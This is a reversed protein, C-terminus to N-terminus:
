KCAWYHSNPVQMSKCVKPLAIDRNNSNENFKLYMTSFKRPMTLTFLGQLVVVSNFIVMLIRNVSIVINIVHDRPFGLLPPTPATVKSTFVQCLILSYTRNSLCSSLLSIKRGKTMRHVLGLLSFFVSPKWWGVVSYARKRNSLVHESNFVLCSLQTQAPTVQIGFVSYTRTHIPHRKANHCVLPPTPKRHKKNEM